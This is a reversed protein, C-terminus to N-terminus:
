RKRSFKFKPGDDDDSSEEEKRMLPMRAQRQRKALPETTPRTAPPRKKTSSAASRQTETQGSPSEAARAERPRGPIEDSEIDLDMMMDEEEEARTRVRMSQSQSHNQSQSKSKRGSHNSSNALWYSEGIGFDKRKVEELTVMVKPPRNGADLASEGRRRFKKYNKLGNWRDDWRPTSQSDQAAGNTQIAPRTRRVPVDMDEVIALCGMQAVSLAEDGDATQSHARSASLRRSAEADLLEANRRAAHLVDAEKQKQKKTSEKKSVPEIEVSPQRSPTQRDAQDEDLRRKKMAAAGPFLSDLGAASDIEQDEDIPRVRKKSKEQPKTRAVPQESQSRSNSVFLSQPDPDAAASWQTASRNLDEEAEHVPSMAPKEPRDDDSDELGKFRSKTMTRRIRRKVRPQSNHSTEPAPSAKENRNTNPEHNDPSTARDEVQATRRSRTLAEPATSVSPRSLQEDVIISRKLPRADVQLIAELFENQWVSRQELDLDLETYFNRTWDDMKEDGGPPRVVIVAKSVDADYVHELGKKEAVNRVYQTFDHLPTQGPRLKFHLTKAGGNTLVPSLSAHQGAYGFIFTFGDFVTMRGANPAFDAPARPNPEKGPRPLYRMADPWNSQFDDELLSSARSGDETTGPSSAIEAVADIFEETVINKGNVLAQLCKPINRKTAVIHTTADIVYPKITKIDLHELKQRHPGLIDKTRQDEKESFTFSLVVPRWTVRSSILRGCMACISIKYKLTQGYSGLRIKHETGNM